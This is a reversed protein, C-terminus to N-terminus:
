KSDKQQIYRKKNKTILHDPYWIFNQKPELCWSEYIQLNSETPPFMLFTKAGRCITYYVSTGGFDIHFDTFSNKVSMLCYKTVKSRPQEDLPDWIKDVLDLQEVCTPRKFEIGLKSVNSIELSIVNRIRDRSQEETNFYDRWQKLRWPPSVGQQSIVDMVELPTDEGCCETVYDVTIKNKSIPFKMGNKDLDAQPILIPKIMKSELVYDKTLENIISINPTGKFNM